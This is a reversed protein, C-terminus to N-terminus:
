VWHYRPLLPLSTEHLLRAKNCCTERSCCNHRSSQDSTTAKGVSNNTLRSHCGRNAIVIDVGLASTEVKYIVCGTMQVQEFLNGGKGSLEVAGSSRQNGKIDIYVRADTGACRVDSTHTVVQIVVAHLQLLQAWTAHATFVVYSHSNSIIYVPLQPRRACKQTSYIRISDQFQWSGRKCQMLQLPGGPM